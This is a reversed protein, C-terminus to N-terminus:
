CKNYYIWSYINHMEFIWGGVKSIWELLEHGGFFTIKPCKVLKLAIKENKEKRTEMKTEIMKWGRVGVVM